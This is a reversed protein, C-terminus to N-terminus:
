VTIQVREWGDSVERASVHMTWIAAVYKVSSLSFIKTEPRSQVEGGDSQCM